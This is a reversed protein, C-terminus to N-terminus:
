HLKDARGAPMGSSSLQSLMVPTTCHRLSYDFHAVFSRRIARPRM